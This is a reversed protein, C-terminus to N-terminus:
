DQVFTMQYGNQPEAFWGFSPCLIIEPSRDLTFGMAHFDEALEEAYMSEGGSLALAWEFPGEEWSVMWSGSPNCEHGPEWLHVNEAKPGLDKLDMGELEKASRNLMAQLAGHCRRAATEARELKTLDVQHKM